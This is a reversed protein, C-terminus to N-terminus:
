VYVSGKGNEMHQIFIFLFVYLEFTELLNKTQKSKESKPFKSGLSAFKKQKSKYIKKNEPPTIRETKRKSIQWLARLVIFEEFRSSLQRYNQTLFVM